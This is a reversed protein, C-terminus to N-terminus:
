RANAPMGSLLRDIVDTASWGDPHIKLMAEVDGTTTGLTLLPAEKYGDAREQGLGIAAM